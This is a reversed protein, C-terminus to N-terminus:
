ERVYWILLVLGLGINVIMLMASLDRNGLLTSGFAIAIMLVALSSRVVFAMPPPGMFKLVFLGVVTASGCAYTVLHVRRFLDGFREGMLAGLWVVLAVLTAYRVLIM